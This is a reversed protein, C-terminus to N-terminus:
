CFIRLMKQLDVNGGSLIIGVHKGGFMDAHTLVAGLPVAGSPEVVLKMREWIHRMAVAISEEGVTLIDNVHALILPFAIRGLSTLLGDAISRPPGAPLLAKQRFSRFADDALEPEAAIVRTKPSVFRTALATGSLLGGGGVPAIVADLGPVQRHFELACTAQGAIVRADDYPHILVAGTHEIVEDVAAERAELTPECLIVEAGYGRVAAIKVGPATAPMVIFAKLGKLRAALALAQAHNGSSHTVVGRRAEENSLSLVANAAGRFKFAGVKQLNECKFALRAGAMEDLSGCTMVPTKHIHPAIRDAAEQLADLDLAKLQKSSM